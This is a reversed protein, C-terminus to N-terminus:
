VIHRPLGPRLKTLSEYLHPTGWQMWDWVSVSVDGDNGLMTVTDGLAVHDLDTIDLLLANMNVRGVLPVQQGRILVFAGQDSHAFPFGDSYGIPVLAIRTKRKAQFTIDYGAFEGEEMLKVSVVRSRFSLVPKLQLDNDFHEKLARNPYYGYISIGTRAFSLTTTPHVLLGGSNSVHRYRLQGNIEGLSNLARQYAAYQNQAYSKDELNWANAYHTAAGTLKLKPYNKLAHLFETLEKPQLGFRNMGTDIKLHIHLKHGDPIQDHITPLRSKNLLLCEINAQALQAISEAPAFGLLMILAAPGVTERVAIAEDPNYVAFAEVGSEHCLGAILELGHGYANGKVVACIRDIGGARQSLKSLNYALNDRSIEIWSLENVLHNRTQTLFVHILYNIHSAAPLHRYAIM